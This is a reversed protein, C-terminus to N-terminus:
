SPPANARLEANERKLEAIVKYLYRMRRCLSVTDEDESDDLKDEEICKGSSQSKFRRALAEQILEDDEEDEENDLDKMIDEVEFCLADIEKIKVLWEEKDKKNRKFNDDMFGVLVGYSADDDLDDRISCLANESNKSLSAFNLISHKPLM